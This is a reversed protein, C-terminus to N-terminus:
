TAKPLPNISYALGKFYYFRLFLFLNFYIGTRLVLCPIGAVPYKSENNVIQILTTGEFLINKREVDANIQINELNLYDEYKAKSIALSEGTLTAEDVLCEGQLIICDCPVKESENLFIISGCVIDTTSV